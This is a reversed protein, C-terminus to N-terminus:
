IRELAERHTRHDGAALVHGESTLSLPKGHWDTILGGAGQIIPVLAAWDYPKLGEEMVLDLHGAALLGYNHCDGGFLMDAVSRGVRQFSAHGAATFALPHTSAARARRLTECPRVRVSKGNLTTQPRGVTCGLWRDNAAGASLLGLIPKDQEILAILTGYLPRGAVFGRTGDIPDIVWVRGSSGREVGYEEGYIGDTPRDRKLMQRIAAEAARDAATVPSLDAKEEVKTNARFFPAVAEDAANALRQILIIDSEISM